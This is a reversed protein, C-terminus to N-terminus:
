DCGVCMGTAAEYARTLERISVRQCRSHRALWRHLREYQCHREEVALVALVVQASMEGAPCPCTGGNLCVCRACVTEREPAEDFESLKSGAARISEVLQPLQLEVGCRRCLRTYPPVGGARAPCRGCVRERVETLYEAYRAKLFM